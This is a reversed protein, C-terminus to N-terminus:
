EWREYGQFIETITNSIELISSVEKIEKMAEVADHSRRYCKEFYKANDEANRLSCITSTSKVQQQKLREIEEDKEKLEDKLLAINQKLVTVGWIGDKYKQSKLKQAVIM